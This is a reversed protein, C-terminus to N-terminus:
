GGASEGAIEGLAQEVEAASQFRHAINKAMMRRCTAVLDPPADPRAVAIPEPERLQHAMLREAITGAPFPPHGTLAFYLTCGLSYIDARGDVVQGNIAQEPALYDAADASKKRLQELFLDIQEKTLLGSKEVLEKWRIVKPSM